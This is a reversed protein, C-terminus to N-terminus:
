DKDPKSGSKSKDKKEGSFIDGIGGLNGLEKLGDLLPLKELVSNMSSITVNSLGDIPHAFVKKMVVHTLISVFQSTMEGSSGTTGINKVTFDPIQQDIEGGAVTVIKGKATLHVNKVILEHIMLNTSSNSPPLKKIYEQVHKILIELNIRADVQELDFHLGDLVMRPIDINSSMLTGIGCDIETRKVTLIYDYDFGPPNKITIDNFSSRSTLVGLSVGGVESDVGLIGTVQGDIVSKAIVDVLRLGVIALIILVIVVVTSITLAKRHKTESKM